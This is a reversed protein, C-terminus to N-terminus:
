LLLGAADLKKYFDIVTPALQERDNLRLVNPAKIGRNYSEPVLIAAHAMQGVGVATEASDEVILPIHEEAMEYKKQGPTVFRVDVDPNLGLRAILDKTVRQAIGTGYGQAHNDIRMEAAGPVWTWVKVDIGADKIAKIAEVVGPYPQLDAYGGQARRAFTIFAELFEKGSLANDPDMQMHYFATKRADINHGFHLNCFGAFAGLWDVLTNHLDLVVAREWRFDPDSPTLVSRPPWNPATAAPVAVVKARRGSTSKKKSTM